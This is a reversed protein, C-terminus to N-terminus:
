TLDPVHSENPFFPTENGKKLCSSHHCGSNGRCVALRLRREGERKEDGEKAVQVNSGEFLTRISGERTCSYSDRLFVWIFLCPKWFAGAVAGRGFQDCRTEQYRPSERDGDIVKVKIGIFLIREKFLLIWRNTKYQNQISWITQNKNFSKYGNCIRYLM